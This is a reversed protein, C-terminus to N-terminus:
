RYVLVMKMIVMILVAIAICGIAEFGFGPTSTPETTEQPPESQNTKNQPTPGPTKDGTENEIVITQPTTTSAPTPTPTLAPTSTPTTENSTVNEATAPTPTPTTEASGSGGGGDGSGGGNSSAIFEISVDNSEINDCYACVNATGATTSTLTTSAKGSADTMVRRDSLTGATTNFDIFIGDQLINGSQGKLQATIITTDGVTISPTDSSLSIGPLTSTILVTRSKGGADIRFAGTPIGNTDINLAFNGNSEVCTKIATIVKVNVSTAGDTAVGSITIDKEGELEILSTIGAYETTMPFSHSFILIDDTIKLPNNLVEVVGFLPIQITISINEGDCMATLPVSLEFEGVGIDVPDIEIQANKITEIRISFEKEGAPFKIGELEKEYRGDTPLSMEFSSKIWVYPDDPSAKGSISLTEDQVVVQPNVNLETVEASTITIPVLMLLSVALIILMASKRTFTGPKM